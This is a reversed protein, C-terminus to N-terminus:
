RIGLVDLVVFSAVFFFLLSRVSLEIVFSIFHYCHEKFLSNQVFAHQLQSLQLSRSSNISFIGYALKKGRISAKGNRWTSRTNPFLIARCM